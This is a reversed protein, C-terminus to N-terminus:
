REDADGKVTYYVKNPTRLDVRSLQARDAEPIGRDLAAQLTTIIDDVPQHSDLLIDFGGEVHFLFEGSFRSTLRVDRALKRDFHSEFKQSFDGFFEPTNPEAVREGPQTERGAEDFVVFSSDMGDALDLHPHSFAVGDDHLLFDGNSSRWVVVVPREEIRIVLQDPFFRRITVTRIKPSLDEIERILAEKPLFFFNNKPIIRLYKGSLIGLYKEQLEPLSVTEYGIYTVDRIMTEESFFFIYVLVLLFCTWLVGPLFLNRREPKREPRPRKERSASFESFRLMPMKKKQKGGFFRM